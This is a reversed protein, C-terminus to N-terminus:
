VKAKIRMITTLRALEQLYCYECIKQNSFQLTRIKIDWMEKKTTREFETAIKKLERLRVRNVPEIQDNCMSCVKM